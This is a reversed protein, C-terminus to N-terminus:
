EDWDKRTVREVVQGVVVNLIKEVEPDNTNEPKSVPAQDRHFTALWKFYGDGLLEADANMFKKGGFDQATKGNWRVFEKDMLLGASCTCAFAFSYGDERVMSVIGCGRCHQCNTKEREFNMFKVISEKIVFLKLTKLDRDALARIGSVAAAFPFGSGELEQVFVHKKNEGFPKDQLIFLRDLEKGILEIQDPYWPIKLSNM